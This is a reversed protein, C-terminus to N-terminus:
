SAEGSGSAGLIRERIANVCEAFDTNDYIQTIGADRLKEESFDETDALFRRCMEGYRPHEDARERRLARELRLGDEVNVYLPIVREDGYYRCFAKYSELTGIILVDERALDIQGDDCTYYFWPGYFSEYMRFEIIRGESRLKEFEERTTFHYERGEQEHERIPRTTYPVVQHLCLDESRLLEQYISDKGSASKGMLCFIHHM